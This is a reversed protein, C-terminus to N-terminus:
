QQTGEVLASDAAWSFVIENFNEPDVTIPRGSVVVSAFTIEPLGSGVGEEYLTLAVSAGDVLAGQGTTDSPDRWCTITGTVRAPGVGHGVYDQGMVVAEATNREINLEWTRVEAVAAAGVHVAGDTGMKRAM